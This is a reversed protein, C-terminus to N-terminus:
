GDDLLSVSVVVGDEDGNDVLSFCCCFGFSYSKLSGGHMKRGKRSKPRFVDFRACNSYVRVLPFISVHWSVGTLWEKRCFNRCAVYLM